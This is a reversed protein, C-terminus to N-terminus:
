RWIYRPHSCYRLSLFSLTYSARIGKSIVRAGEDGGKVNDLILEKIQYDGRKLLKAVVKFTALSIRNSSLNIRKLQKPANQLLSIAGNDSLRNDSFDVSNIQTLQKMAASFAGAYRDGISFNAINIEARSGERKVMGLAKPILGKNGMQKLYAQLAPTKKHCETQIEEIRKQKRYLNHFKRMGTKGMLAMEYEEGEYQKLEENEEAEDDVGLLTHSDDLDAAPAQVSSKQELRSLLREKLRDQTRSSVKATQQGAKTSANAFRAYRGIQSPKSTYRPDLSPLSLCGQLHLSQKSVLASSLAPLQLTSGSAEAVPYLISTSKKM